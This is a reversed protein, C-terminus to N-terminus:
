GLSGARIGAAHDCRDDLATHALLLDGAAPGCDAAALVFGWYRSDKSHNRNDGLVFYEDQPFWWNATAPSARCRGGGTPISRPIPTFEAPFEDRFPDPPLRSLPRMLSM